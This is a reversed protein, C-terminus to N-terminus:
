GVRKSSAFRADPLTKTRNLLDTFCQSILAACKFISRVHSLLRFTTQVHSLVVSSFQLLVSRCGPGVIGNRIPLTRKALAVEVAACEQRAKALTPLALQGLASTLFVNQSM